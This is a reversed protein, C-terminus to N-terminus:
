RAVSQSANRMNHTSVAAFQEILRLIGPEDAVRAPGATLPEHINL